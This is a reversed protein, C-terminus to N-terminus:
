CVPLVCNFPNESIGAKCPIAAVRRSKVRKRATADGRWKVADVANDHHQWTWM